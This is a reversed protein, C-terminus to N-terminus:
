KFSKVYNVLHWHDENSIRLGQAPMRGFGLYIRLFVDSDSLQLIRPDHLSPPPPTLKRGVPGLYTDRTGHCMACNIQYLEAGRKLSAEDAPVPNELKSGYDPTPIEGRTTVAERPASLRPSEQPNFSPQDHMDNCGNGFLLIVLVVSLKCLAPKM